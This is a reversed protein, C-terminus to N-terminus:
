LRAHLHLQDSHRASMWADSKAVLWGSFKWVILTMLISAYGDVAYHWGLHVSGIQITLAFLWMACGAWKNIRSALLAMAIAMAVHMSPFASIGGGLLDGNAIFDQWLMDQTGLAPLGLPINDALLRAHMAHLNQMLSAYPNVGTQVFHEYYCPGASSFITAVFFGGVVWSIAMTLLFQARLHSKQASLICGFICTFVLAFWANYAFNIGWTAIDSGFLSHTIRWPDVGFHLLRDLKAFAADWSYPHIVSIMAKLKDYSFVVVIMCLYNVAPIILKAPSSAFVKAADWLYRIPFKPRVVFITHFVKYFVIISLAYIFILFPLSSFFGSYSVGAHHYNMSLALMFTQLILCFIWSPLWPGIGLSSKQESSGSTSDIASASALV